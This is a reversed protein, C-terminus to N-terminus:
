KCIWQGPGGVMTSMTKTYGGPCGCSPYDYDYFYNSTIPCTTVPATCRYKWYEPSISGSLSVKIFNSPCSCNQYSSGYFDQGTPCINQTNQSVCRFSTSNYTIVSGSPCTCNAGGGIVLSEAQYDTNLACYTVTNSKCYNNYDNQSYYTQGNLNCYYSQSTQQNTQVYFYQDINKYNVGDGCSVKYSDIGSVTSDYSQSFNKNSSILSYSSDGQGKWYTSCSANNGTDITFNVNGNAGTSDYYGSNNKSLNKYLNTSYLSISVFYDPLSSSRCYNNYDNLNYYTQNNLNCYYTVPNPNPNPTPIPTPVPIYGCSDNYIANRTLSGAYGSPFLNKNQQYIIVARKTALGFYGSPNTNLYGKSYLFSQLESVEGNTYVDRSGVKLNNRLNVCNSQANSVSINFVFVVVFLLVSLFYKKM